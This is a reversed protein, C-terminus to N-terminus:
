LSIFGMVFHYPKQLTFTSKYRIVHHCSHLSQVIVDVTIHPWLQLLLFARLVMFKFDRVGVAYINDTCM